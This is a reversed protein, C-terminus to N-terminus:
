WTLSAAVERLIESREARPLITYFPAMSRLLQGQDTEALLTTRLAEVGAGAAVEMFAFAPRDGTRERARRVCRVFEPLLRGPDRAVHELAREAFRRHVIDTEVVDTDMTDM